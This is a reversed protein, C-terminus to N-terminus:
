YMQPRWGQQIISVNNGMGAEHMSSRQMIGEFVYEDIMDSSEIIGCSVSFRGERDLHNEPSYPKELQLDREYHKFLQWVLNEIEHNCYTVPLKLLEKAERRPIMYSHSFLKETLNDVIYNIRSEDFPSMHMKLLKKTVTRILSYTRQISGLSLPHIHDLLQSFIQGLADDNKIKMIDNVITLFSFVDEVNIPVRVAPNNPDTPNFMSTVNPDVPSLEAMKTMLLESAGLSVLTGASYSRYPIIVSFNDTYEYILEVLRLATLVDGGKTYLFLDIKERSELKELHKHFIPIIDPAIRTSVNQRDGAIYCIISSQRIDSLEKILQQRNENM